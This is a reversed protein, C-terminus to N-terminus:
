FFNFTIGATMIKTRTLNNVDNTFDRNRVFADAFRAFAQMGFKKFRSKELSFNYSFQGSYNINRNRVTRARDGVLAQSIEGALTAGKFPQWNLGFNVSKTRNVTDLKFNRQSDFTFGFNFALTERPNVGVTIGHVWGLQDEDRNAEQRNDAFSRNYTYELTLKKFQWGSSFTQNTNVLDPITALDIEFGGNVPVGAGFNRTRDISYGLRPLFPSPKESKGFLANLPLAFGFRNSRILSKLISPVNRLNDNSRAHAAQFTIEGLAGDLTFDKSFKDASASAGLSRYLPEVFEYRFGVSLNLNKTKTVKVDKLIQYSTELYHAGRLVAPLVVANGDPDLTTDQPNFFRSLAYGFELKFRETKDSTLFRLGFGRSQEADVIRGESVNNLAQLYGNFGTVELRMANARKPFFEIGLTAGQVQHRIKSVGFFNGVGLVSTGNLFGATLDFRKNIPINVSLGRSSFSSVLHRNGGFSTHGLSFKARGLEFNMLYSSLDIDPAERGLTGFQLTREKFSSGAFDFNSAMTLLGAKAETKIQGTFDFDNFTARNEPRTEAPFNSQFPQAAMAITFTPLFKFFRKKETETPTETPTETKTEETKAEEPKSEVTKTEDTKTESTVADTKTEATKTEETKTEPAKVEETKTAETKVEETKTAETKTEEVKTEATKVEEPKNESPKPEETKTAETKVPTEDSKKEEPKAPETIQKEAQNETKVDATKQSSVQSKSSAVLLPLRALEKWAGNPEVLYVTLSSKGVPLPLLGANYVFRNETQEFLNSLDTQELTLAIKEGTRLARSLTVTIATEPAVAEGDKFDATATLDKEPTVQASSDHRWGFFVTALLLLATLRIKNFKRISKM